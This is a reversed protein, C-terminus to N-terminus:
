EAIERKLRYVAAEILVDAEEPSLEIGQAQLFAMVQAKKRSGSGSERLVQEAACAAAEVWAAISKLKEQGLRQKLFPLVFASAVAILLACCAKFIETYDM